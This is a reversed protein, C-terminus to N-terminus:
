KKGQMRKQFHNMMQKEIKYVQEIQKQTLFKSYNFAAQQKPPLTHIAQQLRVAEVDSYDFYDLAKISVAKDLDMVPEKRREILRLAENTAIRYLWAAFSHDEKYQGISRFIRVFTDQAADKADDHSVVLRRIHWYLPQEYRAMLMRFGQEPNTKLSQVIEKDEM